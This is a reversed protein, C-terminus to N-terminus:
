FSARSASRDINAFARRSGPIVHKPIIITTKVWGAVTVLKRLHPIKRRPLATELYQLGLIAQLAQPLGRASSMYRIPLSERPLSRAALEALIDVVIILRSIASEVVKVGGFHRILKSMM